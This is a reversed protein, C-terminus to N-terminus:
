FFKEITNQIVPLIQKLTSKSLTISQLADLQTQNHVDTALFDILGEDLLRFAVKQVDKGYFDALSLMNLQFLIGQQKFKSYKKPKNHLFGYREPHALIPFFRKGTIKSIAEEFNLPPQLYSMEVLLYDNKLPMFGGNELLAEFNGDIMHEAAAAITIHKLNTKLMENKLANLAESITDATNPYYDNMIHPTAIFKHVGFESFAKLLAISDAVTKAGDDIGPLIHNHIDVFGGLYDILFKKKTFFYFMLRVYRSLLLILLYFLQSPGFNPWQKGARKTDITYFVLRVLTRWPSLNKNPAIIKKTTLYEIKVYKQGFILGIPVVKIITGRLKFVPNLLLRIPFPFLGLFHKFWYTGGYYKFHKNQPAKLPIGM